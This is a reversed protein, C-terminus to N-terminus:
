VHGEAIVGELFEKAVRLGNKAMLEEKDLSDNAPLSNHVKVISDIMFDVEEETYGLM